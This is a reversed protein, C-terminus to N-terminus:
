ANDEDDAIGTLKDTSKNNLPNSLIRRTSDMKKKLGKLGRSVQFISGKKRGQNAGEIPAQVGAEIVSSRRASMRTTRLRSEYTDESEKGEEDSGGEQLTEKEWEIPALAGAQLFSVKSSRRISMKEFRSKVTDDGKKEEEKEAEEKPAEKQITNNEAPSSVAKIVAAQNSKYKIVIESDNGLEPNMGMLISLGLASNELAFVLANGTSPNNGTICDHVACIRILAKIDDDHPHATLPDTFFFVAAVDGQSIMGGIEQDGGLPGSSVLHEVELGLSTLARGTSGTTVLKCKKFFNIHLSVFSMMSPKMNNHAVLAVMKRHKSSEAVVVSQRKAEAANFATFIEVAKNIESILRDPRLGEDGEVLSENFAQELDVKDALGFQHMCDFFADYLILGDDTDMM